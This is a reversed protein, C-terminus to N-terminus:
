EPPSRKHHKTLVTLRELRTIAEIFLPYAWGFESNRREVLEGKWARVREVV